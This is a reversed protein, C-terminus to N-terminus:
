ENVQYDRSGPCVQCGRPVRPVSPVTSGRNVTRGVRDSRAERGKTGLFGPCAPNVTSGPNGPIVPTARPAPCAPNGLPDRPALLVPSTDTGKERLSTSHVRFVCSACSCRMANTPSNITQGLHPSSGCSKNGGSFRSDVVHHLHDQVLSLTVYNIANKIGPLKYEYKRM